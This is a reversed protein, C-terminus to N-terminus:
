TQRHVYSSIRRQQTRSRKRKRMALYEPLEPLALYGLAEPNEPLLSVEVHQLNQQAAREGLATDLMMLVACLTDQAREPDFGPIGIKLGVAEPHSASSMPMFWMERMDFQMGEYQTKFDFGLAPKLPIMKWGQMEPASAILAEAIDFAEVNGQATVIFERMGGDPHSMEFWLREDVLHLKEVAQDWLIESSDELERLSAENAVFWDWFARISENAEM